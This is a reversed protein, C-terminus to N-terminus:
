LHTELLPRNDPKKATHKEVEQKSVSDLHNLYRSKVSEYKPAIRNNNADSAGSVAEAPNVPVAKQQAGKSSSGSFLRGPRRWEVRWTSSSPKVAEGSSVQKKKEAISPTQASLIAGPKATGQDAPSPVPAASSKCEQPISTLQTTVVAPVAPKRPESLKITGSASASQLACAPTLDTDTQESDCLTPQDQKKFRLSASNVCYRKGTPKPGDEFVHGM